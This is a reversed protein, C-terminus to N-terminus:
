LRIASFFNELCDQIVRATMLFYIRDDIQEEALQVKRLIYYSVHFIAHLPIAPVLFLTQLVISQCVMVNGKMSYHSIDRIFSVLQIFWVSQFCFCVPQSILNMSFAKYLSPNPIFLTQM